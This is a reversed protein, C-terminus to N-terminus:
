KESTMTKIREGMLFWGGKRHDADHPARDYYIEFLQGNSVQVRFFFRGVGWSGSRAASAIHGPTMNRAMKGRRHFDVWQELVGTIAFREGRWIFRQPCTPTKELTPPSDFEM